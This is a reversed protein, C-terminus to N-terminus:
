EQKMLRGIGRSALEGAIVGAVPGAFATGLGTVGARAVFKVLEEGSNARFKRDFAEVEFTTSKNRELTTTLTARGPLDYTHTRDNIASSFDFNQAGAGQVQGTEISSLTRM